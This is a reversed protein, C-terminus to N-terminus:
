NLQNMFGSIRKIAEHLDEESAAYSLRVYGEGGPGFVNGPILGVKAKKALDTAFKLDDTGYQAPIKAFMYFAGEPTAMEFGLKKLADELYDRRKEYEKRMQIPDDDGNNLAEIAADQSADTATTVLYSHIKGAENVFKAPGCIYGLRYGTMAHSKSLGSVLVTREPIETAMSYHKRGGYILSSYIEDVVAFLHHKEIVKALAQIQEKSYTRGTPNTPYNLMVAKVASGAKDIEAELREPTLTFGDAATNVLVPEAGTIEVIPFYLSFVPTPIIVKDGPNLMAMMTSTLAETGGITVVIETEPDYDIGRSRKIYNSIAKRLEIKGRNVSYHSDNNKIGDIAAQKVHEPTNFDPEGLTLKLIGPIKSCMGDFARIGSIQMKTIKDNVTHNLDEALEPM